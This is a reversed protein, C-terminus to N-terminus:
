PEDAIEELVTIEAGNLHLADGARYRGPPYQSRAGDLAPELCQASRRQRRQDAPVLFDVQQQTAPLAGLCPVALHYQDGTLGTDALRAKGGCQRLAQMALRMDPETIEARRVMLIAGKM